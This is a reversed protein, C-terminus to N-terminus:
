GCDQKIDYARKKIWDEPCADSCNEKMREIFFEIVNDSLRVGRCEASHGNGEDGNKKWKTDYCNENYIFREM